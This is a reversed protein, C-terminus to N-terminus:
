LKSIKRYISGAPGQLKLLYVGAPLKQDEASKGDWNVVLAGAKHFDSFLTKVRQGKLNYVELSIIQDKKLECSIALNGRFPNPSLQMDITHLTPSVADQLNTGSQVEWFAEYSISDSSAVHCRVTHQGGTAFSTDLLFSSETDLIDDIYWQFSLEAEDTYAEVVFIQSEGAPIEVVEDTPPFTEGIQLDLMRLSYINVPTIPRDNADTPVAGIALVNDLGEIIDGFIAYGGDLHSARAVTIYYQSGASNPAASRAMALVGAHDHFLDPHFEDEITYGPGGYGTGYPCGDQIMFGDIVRHFILNNYFGSNALDRFNHATIPVLEDYIEATFSGMSSHWRAFIRANSIAPLCIFLGLLMVIFRHKM